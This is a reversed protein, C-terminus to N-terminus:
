GDGVGVPGVEVLSLDDSIRSLDDSIVIIRVGNRRVLTTDAIFTAMIDGYVYSRSFKNLQLGLRRMTKAPLHM